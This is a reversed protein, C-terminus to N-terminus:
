RFVQRSFRVTIERIDLSHLNAHTEAAADRVVIASIWHDFTGASSYRYEALSSHERCRARTSGSLRASHATASRAEPRESIYEDSRRGRERERGRRGKAYSGRATISLVAALVCCYRQRHELTASFQLVVTNRSFDLYRSISHSSPCKRNISPNHIIRSLDQTQIRDLRWSTIGAVFIVSKRFFLVSENLEISM